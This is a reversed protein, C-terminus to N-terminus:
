FTSLTDTFCYIINALFTYYRISSNMFPKRLKPVAVEINFILFVRSSQGKNMM